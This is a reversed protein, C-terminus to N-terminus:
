HVGELPPAIRVDMIACPVPRLTLAVGLAAHLLFGKIEAEPVPEAPPWSRGVEEPVGGGFFRFSVSVGAYDIVAVVYRADPGSRIGARVKVHTSGAAMQPGPKGRRWEVTVKLGARQAQKVLRGVMARRLITGPPDGASEVGLSEAWAVARPTAFIVFVQSAKQLLRGPLYSGIVGLDYGEAALDNAGSYIADLIRGM